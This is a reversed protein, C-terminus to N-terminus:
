HNTVSETSTILAFFLDEYARRDRAAQPTMLTPLFLDKEEATPPRSYVALFMQELREAPSKTSALIGGLVGGEVARSGSNTLEGNLLLLAQPMSGDFDADAMEDDEFTFRYEKLGQAMLRDARDQGGQPGQEQGRRQRNRVIDDAGTATILTRFLQGPALPRVRAAAFARPSAGPDSAGGRDYAPSLVLQRVLQKVDFGSARFDAALRNLMVPHRPDKEAGLDDWPDAMDAGLLQAWTRAVMAKPFLDSAVVAQAFALRRNENRDDFAGQLRRRRQPRDDVTGPPLAQFPTERGLFRPKVVVEQESRPARMRAEGRRVDSVSFSVMKGAPMGAAMNVDMAMDMDMARDMGPPGKERKVKTRAFYAVLGYFDQQKWRTDYPHDHCQACQINLGLFLRAAAGAVAEPGGGGRARVAVFAVAGNERVDGSATLVSEVLRDYRWNENFATVLFSRPDYRDMRKAGEVKWLLDSYVDAFHEAFEPSALLRDVLQRRKDPNADALYARTEALTPIRGILDLSVRRLYEGDSAPPAPTVGAKRWHDSILGALNAAAKQQDATPAANSGGSSSSQTASCGVALAGLACVLTSRM